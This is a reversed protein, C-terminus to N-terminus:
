PKGAAWSALGALAAVLGGSVVGAIWNKAGSQKEQVDTIKQEHVALQLGHAEIRNALVHRDAKAESRMEVLSQEIRGCTRALEWISPQENSDM